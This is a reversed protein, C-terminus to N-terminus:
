LWLYGLVVTNRDVRVLRTYCTSCYRRRKALRPLSGRPVSHLASANRAADYEEAGEIDDASIAVTTAVDECLCCKKGALCDLCYIGKSTHRAFPAARITFECARCRGDTARRSRIEACHDCLDGAGRDRVCRICLAWFCVMCTKRVYGTAAEATLFRGECEPCTRGRRSHWDPPIVHAM